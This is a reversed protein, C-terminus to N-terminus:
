VHSNHYTNEEFIRFFHLSAIRPCGGPTALAEYGDYIGIIEYDLSEQMVTYLDHFPQENKRWEYM